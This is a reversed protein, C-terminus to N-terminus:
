KRELNENNMNLGSMMDMVASLPNSLGQTTGSLGQGTGSLGDGGQLGSVMQLIASPDQLISSLPNSSNQNGGGIGSLLPSMMSLISGMDNLPNAASSFASSPIDTNESSLSELKAPNLLDPISNILQKSTPDLADKEGLESTLNKLMGQVSGLLNDLKLEGSEIGNKMQSTMQTFAGNKVLKMAMEFPNVNELDEERTSEKMNDQFTNLFNNIFVTEKNGSPQSDKKVLVNKIEENDPSVMYLLLQLHKFIIERNEKDTNKIIDQINIFVKESTDFRIENPTLNTFNNNIIHEKNPILFRSFYEVHKNIANTNSVTTKKCLKYYLFVNNYKTGFSDNLENLFSLIKTFVTLNNKNNM